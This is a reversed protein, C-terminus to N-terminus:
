NLLTGPKPPTFPDEEEVSLLICISLLAQRTFSELQNSYGKDFAVQWVFSKDELNLSQIYEEKGPPSLQPLNIFSRIEKEEAMYLTCAMVGSAYAEELDEEEAPGLPKQEGTQINSLIHALLKKIM